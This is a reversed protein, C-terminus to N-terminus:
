PRPRPVTVLPLAARAVGPRHVRQTLEALEPAGPPWYQNRALELLPEPEPFAFALVQDTGFPPTVEIRSADDPPIRVAVEAPLPKLESTYKPYLVRIGGDPAIDLLLLHAPRESRVAFYVKQGEVAAVGRAEGSLELELRFGAGVPALLTKIWAQRRLTDVLVGTEPGPLRAILDGAPNLLLWDSGDRSVVIDPASTDLGLEPLPQLVPELSAAVPGTLRVRLREGVAPTPAPTDPVPRQLAIETTTGDVDAELRPLLQPTHPLKRTLLFALTAQQLEAASLRGDHNSDAALEGLLVRLLADSFAGHTLGDHTPLAPLWIRNIDVAQEAESAASVSVVHRYPYPEEQFTGCRFGCLDPDEGPAVTPGLDGRMPLAVYRFSLPPASLASRYLGRVSNGSYCADFLALVRRGGRDLAELRPRLDTRGVILRGLQQQPTGDRSFDAPVLAGSGYPLPLGLRRDRASTGHGSFYLLVLDGARSRPMLRDLEGLIAARTAQVDVLTVVDAPAFGWQAILVERLAAVDNAAGELPQAGSGYRDIGVLLAINGASALAPVLLLIWLCRWCANM